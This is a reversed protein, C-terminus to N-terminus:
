SRFITKNKTVIVVPISWLSVCFFNAHYLNRLKILCGSSFRDNGNLLILIKQFVDLYQHLKLISLLIQPLVLNLTHYLISSQLFETLRLNVPFKLNFRLFGFAWCQLGCLVVNAPLQVAKTEVM